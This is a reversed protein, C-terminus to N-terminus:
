VRREWSPLRRWISTTRTTCPRLMRRHQFWYDAYSGAGGGLVPHDTVEQWATHFQETRGNGSLSFLRQQSQGATQARRASRTTRRGPSHRPFGYRGFVVILSAALIFVLTGVYLRQLGHPVTVAAELWDLPSFRLGPLSVLAIAIVALGHGDRSAATLACRRPHAGALDLRGLDCAGALPGARAHGHDAPTPPSRDRDDRRARRLVRDLRRPQVHLLAHARSRGRGPPSAACWRAAERRLGLALLAGIAALIGFANWYGVPYSLRYGSFPDFVRAAGSVAADRCRVDVGRHDGGLDRRAAHTGVAVCCFSASSSAPLTSSRGSSSSCREAPRQEDLAAALSIWGTLAALVGLWM